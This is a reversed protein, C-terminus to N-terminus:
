SVIYGKKKLWQIDNFNNLYLYFFEAYNGDPSDIESEVTLLFHM